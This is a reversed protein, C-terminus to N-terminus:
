DRVQLHIGTFTGVSVAICVVHMTHIAWIGRNLCPYHDYDTLTKGHPDHCFYLVPVTHIDVVFLFDTRNNLHRVNSKTRVTGPYWTCPLLYERGGKAETSFDVRILRLFFPKHHHM